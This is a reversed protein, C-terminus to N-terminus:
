KVAYIKVAKTKGKVVVEDVYEANISDKVENYTTESILIDVNYEKTLSEIRSTLNVNDGIVTYDVLRPSGMHGVIMEGTNIGIGIKLPEIGQSEWKKNLAFLKERMSIATQVAKLPHDPLEVPDNYFAMIADGIYKDLTGNYSLIVEVMETIYENLISIVDDPSNKESLATFGRIDSFLVTMVKRQGKQSISEKEKLLKELIQPSVFKGFLNEVSKREINERYTIYAYSAIGMLIMFAVPYTINLWIRINPLIFAGFAIGIYSLVTLLFAQVKFFNSKLRTMLLGIILCSLITIISNLWIPAQVIFKRSHPHNVGSDNLINDIATTIIEPGPYVSAMPTPHLDTGASTQGIVVIKDKFYEPKIYNFNATNQIKGDTFAKSLIVNAVSINEYTGGQGHWNLLISGSNDINVQRKGIVIKNKEIRFPTKEQESLSSLTAALPLSPLYCTKGALVLKYFPIHKRFVVNESSKLNIVGINKTNEILEKYIASKEYFTINKLFNKASKDSYLANEYYNYEPQLCLNPNISDSKYYVGYIAAIYSDIDSIKSDELRKNYKKLENNLSFVIKESKESSKPQSLATSIIVNNTKITDAFYRDANFDDSGEFKLDFVITKPKGKSIYNVIDGWVNRPWPWRGTKVQPYSELIRTSEDNAALLIINKDHQSLNNNETAVKARWDYTLTEIDAFIQKLVLAWVGFIIFFVILLSKIFKNNM